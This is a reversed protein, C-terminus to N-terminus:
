GGGAGLVDGYSFGGCAAFAQFDTLKRTGSVLDSMHVDACNFGAASFAAAMEIQGNVGQERLIAINPLASGVVAPIQRPDFTLRANLGPNEDRSAMVSAFEEDACAASDRRRQMVYSTQAWQQQLVGRSATYLPQGAQMIVVQDDSRIQAVVDCGGPAAERLAPLDAEAIQLVLGIEENFLTPLVEADEPLDINLGLRSAFAMELLTALLGGDSRDHMALIKGQRKWEIALNLLTKLAQPDQVDPAVNGLQGYVQALASGGLRQAGLDLLVLVSDQQLQLEPTVTLRTDTVPAFSSV